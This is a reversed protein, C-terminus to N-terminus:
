DITKLQAVEIQYPEVEEGDNIDFDVITVEISNPDSAEIYQVVGGSVTIVIKNM